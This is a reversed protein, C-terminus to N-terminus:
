RWVNSKAPIDQHGPTRSDALRAGLRSVLRGGRNDSVTAALSNDLHVSSEINDKSPPYNGVATLMGLGKCGTSLMYSM